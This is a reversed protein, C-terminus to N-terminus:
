FSQSSDEWVFLRFVSYPATKPDSSAYLVFPEQPNVFVNKGNLTQLSIKNDDEEILNFIFKEYYGATKSDAVVAGNLNNKVSLYKGTFTQLAITDGNFHILHFLNSTNNETKSCIILGNRKENESIFFLNYGRLYILENKDIADFYKKSYEVQPLGKKRREWDFQYLLDYWELDTKTQFFGKFYAKKTMYDFHILGNKYQWSQFLNLMILLSIVSLLCWTYIKKKSFVFSFFAAMPFSLFSYSDVMPRMGFCFGYSWAWWSSFLYITVPISVITAFFIARNIKYLNFMGIVAFLMVPTYVLWGKRFSFIFAFIEPRNFIFHEDIYADFFWHGTIYKWYSFQLSMFLFVIICGSLVIKFNSKIFFFFPKIGQKKVIGYILFYLLLFIALPRILLIIGFAMSFIIFYKKQSNEIWNFFAYICICLLSFGIGHTMLGEFTLYYLLNTGIGISILTLAVAKDSFYRLLIKKLYHLATFFYILVGISLANQYPLSYGDQAFGFVYAICHGILFFPILAVSLGMSHKILRNGNEIKYYWIKDSFFAPDNNIYNLKLDHYIFASPLYTYYSPVDITIRNQKWINFYFFAFLIFGATFLIARSSLSKPTLINKFLRIQKKVILKIEVL